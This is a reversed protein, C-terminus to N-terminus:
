VPVVRGYLDTVYSTPLVMDEPRSRVEGEQDLLAPLSAGAQAAFKRVTLLM